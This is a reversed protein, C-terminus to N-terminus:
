FVRWLMSGPRSIYVAALGRGAARYAGRVVRPDDAACRAALAPRAAAIVMPWKMVRTWESMMRRSAIAFAPAELDNVLMPLLDKASLRTCRLWDPENRLADERGLKMEDFRRYVAPTPMAINPLMLLVFQPAPPDIPRIVEGRGTCISSPGYFFFPLDSGFPAAFEALQRASFGIGWLSNLGLLTAAADSSGGGLGGGIPIRKTLVASVGERRVPLGPPGKGLTDALATGVRVVLNREDVPLDDCDTRLSVIPGSNDADRLTLELIDFLGITTFWSLLSHFGDARPPGVRLHLNIKAPALLRM